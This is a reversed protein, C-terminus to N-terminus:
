HEKAAEEQAILRRRMIRSVIYYITAFLVVGGVLYQINNLLNSVTGFSSGFYYGLIFLVGYQALAVLSAHKVYLRFPMRVLGAVILFVASLGYSLKSFFMTRFGHTEWLTRIEDLHEQQVGMRTMFRQALSARQGWMGVVYFFSDLIVDRLFFIAFAIYPNFYGLWALTGAVFAVIPGEIFSLPILIWYRYEIILATLSAADM